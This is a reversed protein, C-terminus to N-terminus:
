TRGALSAECATESLFSRDAEGLVLDKMQGKLPVCVWTIQILGCRCWSGVYGLTCLVRM